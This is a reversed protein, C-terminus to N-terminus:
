TSESRATAVRDHCKGCQITIVQKSMQRGGHSQRRPLPWPMTISNGWHRVCPRTWPLNVRKNFLHFLVPIFSHIFPHTLSHTSSHTLSHTLSHTSPHILSHNSSHTLSHIPSHILPHTLSCTFLDTLSHPFPHTLSRTLSPNSGCNSWYWTGTCCLLRPHNTNRDGRAWRM